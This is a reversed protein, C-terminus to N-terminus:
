HAWQFQPLRDCPNGGRRRGQTPGVQLTGAQHFACRAPALRFPALIGAPCRSPVEPMEIWLRLGCDEGM